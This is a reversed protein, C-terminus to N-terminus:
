PLEIGPSRPAVLEDVVMREDAMTADEGNLVGDVAADSAAAM